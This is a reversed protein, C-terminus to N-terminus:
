LSLFLSFLVIFLLFVPKLAIFLTKLILSFKPFLRGIFYICNLVHVFIFVVICNQLVTLEEFISIWDFFKAVGLLYQNRSYDLNSKIIGMRFYVIIFM